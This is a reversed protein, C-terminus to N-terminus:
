SCRAFSASFLFTKLNPQMSAHEKVHKPWKWVRKSFQLGHTRRQSHFFTYWRHPVNPSLSLHVSMNLHTEFKFRVSFKYIKHPKQLKVVSTVWLCFPCVHKFRNIYVEHSRQLKRRPMALFIMRRYLTYFCMKIFNEYQPKCFSVIKWIFRTGGGM